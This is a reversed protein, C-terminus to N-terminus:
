INNVLFVCEVNLINALELKKETRAIKYSYNQLFCVSTTVMRFLISFCGIRFWKSLPLLNIKYFAVRHFCHLKNNADLDFELQCYYFSCIMINAKRFKIEEVILSCCKWLDCGENTRSSDVSYFRSFNTIIQFMQNSIKTFISVKMSLTKESVPLQM